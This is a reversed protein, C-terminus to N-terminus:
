CRKWADRRDGRPHSMRPTRQWTHWGLWGAMSGAVLRSRAEFLSLLPEIRNATIEQHRSDSDIASLFLFLFIFFPGGNGSVSAVCYIRSPIRRHGPHRRAGPLGPKERVSIMGCIARVWKTRPKIIMWGAMPLNIWVVM